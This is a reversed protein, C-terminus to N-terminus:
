LLGGQKNREVALKCYEESLEYGVSRRGLKSAVLLTTGAGAFPDLVISPVKDANLCKCSPQWGLTKTEAPSIMTGSSATRNGANDGWETRNIVMNKHEM